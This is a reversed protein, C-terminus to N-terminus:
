STNWKVRWQDWYSTRAGPVLSAIRSTAVTLVMLVQSESLHDGFSTLSCCNCYQKFCQILYQLLPELFSQFPNQSSSHPKSKHSKNRSICFFLDENTVSFKQLVAYIDYLLLCSILWFHILIFYFNSLIFKRMHDTNKHQNFNHLLNKLM